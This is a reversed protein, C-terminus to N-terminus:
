SRPRNLSAVFSSIAVRGSGSTWTQSVIADYIEYERAIAAMAPAHLQRKTTEYSEAPIKALSRAETIAADLLADPDVVWDIFGVEVAEAPEILRGSLILSQVRSGAAHRAIELAATPFAVGVDLETLGMSGGSMLRVDTAVALVCGGAIAHGNVAAIVPRPHTFVTLLARSLADLFYEIEASSSSLIRRLDVGASFSSGEGTLVVGPADAVEGFAVIIAELLEVDLANVKGHALRLVAIGDDLRDIALM